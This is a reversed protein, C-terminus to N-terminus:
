YMEVVDEEITVTPEPNQELTPNGVNDDIPAVEVGKDEPLPMFGGQPNQANVESLNNKSQKSTKDQPAVSYVVEEVMYEGNSDSMIKNGAKSSYVGLCGLVLVMAGAAYYFRQM